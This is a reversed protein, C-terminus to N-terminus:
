VAVVKVRGRRSKKGKPKVVIEVDRDLANLLQILRGTSFGTFRGRMLASVDPQKLGLLGAAKTQTLGSERIINYIQRTLEAKAQMDDSEVFGLDEFVNGSGETTKTM